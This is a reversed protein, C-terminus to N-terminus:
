FTWTLGFLLSFARLGTFRTFVCPTIDSGGGLGFGILIGALLAVPLVVSQSLLFLGAALALLLLFLLRTGSCHDLLWGPCHWPRLRRRRLFAAITLHAALHTLTDNAASSLFLVAVLMRFERRALAKRLTLGSASAHRSPVAPNRRVWLPGFALILVSFIRYAARWGHQAIWYEALLPRLISGISVGALVIWLALGCRQDFWSTLVGSYGMQATGNAATGLVGFCPLM